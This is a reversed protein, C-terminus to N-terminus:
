LHKFLINLFIPSLSPFIVITKQTYFFCSRFFFRYYFDLLFVKIFIFFHPSPPLLMFLFELLIFNVSKIIMKMKKVIFSLM